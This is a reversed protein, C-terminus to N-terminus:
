GPLRGPGHTLSTLRAARDRVVGGRALCLGSLGGAVIALPVSLGDGGSGSGRLGGPAATPVAVALPALPVESAAGGRGAATGGASGLGSVPDAGAASLPSSGPPRTPHGKPVPSSPAPDPSDTPPGPGLAVV